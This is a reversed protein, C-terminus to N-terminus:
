QIARHVAHAVGRQSPEKPLHPQPHRALPSVAVPHRRNACRASPNTSSVRRSADGARGAHEAALPNTDLPRIDLLPVCQCFYHNCAALKTVPSDLLSLSRAGRGCPLDTPARTALAASGPCTRVVRPM